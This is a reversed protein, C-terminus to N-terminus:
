RFLKKRDEKKMREERERERERNTLRVVDIRNSYRCVLMDDCRGGKKTLITTNCRHTESSLNRKSQM